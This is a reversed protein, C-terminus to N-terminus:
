PRCVFVFFLSFSVLRGCFYMWADMVREKRMEGRKRKNIIIRERKTHTPSPHTFTRARLGLKKDNDDDNENNNRVKLALELLSKQKPLDGLIGNVAAFKILSKALEVHDQGFLKRQYGLIRDLAKHQDPIRGVAGFVAALDVLTAVMDLHRAAEVHARLAQELYPLAQAAQSLALHVKGIMNFTLAKRDKAPEFGHGGEQLAVARELPVLAKNHFGLHYCVSGYVRFFDATSQLLAPSASCASDTPLEPHSALANFHPLLRRLLFLQHPLTPAAPCVENYRDCMGQMLPIIRSTLCAEPGLM